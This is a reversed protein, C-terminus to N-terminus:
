KLKEREAKAEAEHDKLIQQADSKTSIYERLSRITKNDIEILKRKIVANYKEIFIPDAEIETKTRHKHVGKDIKYQPVGDANLVQLNDDTLYFTEATYSNDSGTIIGNEIKYRNKM